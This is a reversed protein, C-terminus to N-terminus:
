NKCFVYEKLLKACDEPTMILLENFKKILKECDLYHKDKTLFIDRQFIYHTAIHMVDYYANARRKKNLTNFDPFMINKFEEFYHTIQKGDRQTGADNFACENFAVQGFIATKKLVLKSAGLYQEELKTKVNPNTREFEDEIEKAAKIEVLGNDQLGNLITMAPTAGRKDLCSYDITITIREGSAYKLALNQVLDTHM